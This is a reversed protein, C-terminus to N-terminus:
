TNMIHQLIYMLGYWYEHERGAMETKHSGQCWLLAQSRVSHQVMPLHRLKNHFCWDSYQRACTAWWLSSTCPTTWHPWHVAGASSPDVGPCTRCWIGGTWKVMDRWYGTEPPVPHSTHHMLHTRLTNSDRRDTNLHQLPGPECMSRVAKKYAQVVCFFLICLRRRNGYKHWCHLVCVCVHHPAICWTHEWSTCCVSTYKCYM